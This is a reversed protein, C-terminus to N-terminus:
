HPENVAKPRRAVASHAGSSWRRRDCGGASMNPTCECNM